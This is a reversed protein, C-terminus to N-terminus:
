GLRTAVDDRLKYAPVTMQRGDLGTIRKRTRALRGQKNLHHLRDRVAGPGMHLKEALEKTTMGEGAPALMEEISALLDTETISM